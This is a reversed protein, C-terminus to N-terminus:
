RNCGSDRKMSSHLAPTKNVPKKKVQQWNKRRWREVAASDQERAVREPKQPTYGLDHLIRGVHDPHYSVRFKKRVVEAVRACTWLENRFRAAVAGRRLISVLQQKQDWSLKPAPGPHPKAALAARGGEQWARRWRKVSSLSVGVLRVIEALPKREQFYEAARHRRAELEAASGKTRM